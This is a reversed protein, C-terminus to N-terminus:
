KTITIKTTSNLHTECLQTPPTNFQHKNNPFITILINEKPHIHLCIRCLESLNTSALWSPKNSLVSKDFIWSTTTTSTSQTPSSSSSSSPPPSTPIPPEETKDVVEPPCLPPFITLDIL